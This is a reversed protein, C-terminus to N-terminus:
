LLEWDEDAERSEVNVWDELSFEGMMEVMNKHEAHEETNNAIRAESKCKCKECVKKTAIKNRYESLRHLGDNVTPGSKWAVGWISKCGVTSCYYFAVGNAPDGQYDHPPQSTSGMVPRHITRTSQNPMICKPRSQHAHLSGSQQEQDLRSPHKFEEWFAKVIKPAKPAQLYSPTSITVSEIAMAIINLATSTHAQPFLALDFLRFKFSKQLHPPFRSPAAPRNIM